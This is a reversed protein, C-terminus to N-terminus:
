CDSKNKRKKIKNVIIVVAMAAAIGATDICVDKFQGSRGSVFRQHFEDSVAYLFGTIISIFIVKKYESSLYLSYMRYLLLGLIAYECIHGLKRIIIEANKLELIERILWINKFFSKLTNLTGTSLQTTQEANQSSFSFIVAMWMVAAATWLIRKIILKRNLIINQENNLQSYSKEKKRNGM